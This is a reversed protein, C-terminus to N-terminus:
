DKRWEEEDATMEELEELAEEEYRLVRGKFAPRITDLVPLAFVRKDLMEHHTFSERIIIEIEGDKINVVAAKYENGRDMFECLSRSLEPEIEGLYEGGLTEVIIQMGKRRLNVEEGPAIAAFVEPPAPNWLKVIGSRAGERLFFDPEILRGKNKISSREMKKLMSIRELNRRAIKDDPNLELAKRYAEEAEDYRGLEFLARGLRNYAEFDDPYIEIISKNASVAEEWRGKLALEIAEREYEEKLRDRGEGTGRM